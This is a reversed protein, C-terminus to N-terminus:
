PKERGKRFDNIKLGGFLFIILIVLWIIRKKEIYISEGPHRWPENFFEQFYYEMAESHKHEKEPFHFSEPTKQEQIHQHKHSHPTHSLAPSPTLAFIFYVWFVSFFIIPARNFNM